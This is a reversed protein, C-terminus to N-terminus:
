TLNTCLSHIHTYKYIRIIDHANTLRAFYLYIGLFTFADLINFKNATRNRLRTTVSFPGFELGTTRTRREVVEYELSFFVCSQSYFIFSTTRQPACRSPRSIWVNSAWPQATRRSRDACSANGVFDMAGCQLSAFLKIRDYKYGMWTHYTSPHSGFLYYCLAFSHSVIAISVVGDYGRRDSHLHGARVSHSNLDIRPKKARRRENWKGEHVFPHPNLKSFHDFTEDSCLHM